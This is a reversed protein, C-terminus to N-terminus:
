VGIRKLANLRSEQSRKYWSTIMVGDFGHPLGPWLHLEVEVHDNALRRAYELDEDRFLDLTGVEIYTPPLGRLNTARAPAVYSLTQADNGERAKGLYADWAITATTPTWSMFKVSPDDQEVRMRDDLMPYILIQKAIPPELKRDRALLCVGAAIGGGASDGHVAIRTPDINFKIATELLHQIVAYADEVGAPAPHEPALRYSVAFYPLNTNAALRAIQPAFLKVSCAIFAGGHFYVVAPTPEKSALAEESAFRTYEIEVGDYSKIKYMTETVGAPYPSNGIVQSIINNTNTRIETVTKASATKRGKIFPEIAKFYEPDYRLGTM